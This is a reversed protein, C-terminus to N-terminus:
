VVKAVDGTIPDGTHDDVWIFPGPSRMHDWENQKYSLPFQPLLHRPPADSVPTQRPLPGLPLLPGSPLMSVREATLQQVMHAAMAQQQQQGRQQAQTRELFVKEETSEQPNGSCDVPAGVLSKRRMTANWHNKIANDTRGPLLKALEAWRNGLVKHFEAIIRDEEPAWADKRIDPNIHNHWRERCQKGIRGPLYAAIQSWKRPGYREVLSRLTEDEENSWPRKVLGPKLAKHWRHLCQLDTRGNLCEAIKRWNKANHFQVAHRLKEDEEATWRGKVPGCTPSPGRSPTLQEM